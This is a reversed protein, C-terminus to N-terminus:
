WWKGSIEKWLTDGRKVQSWAGIFPGSIAVLLSLPWPLLDTMFLRLAICGFVVLGLLAGGIIAGLRSYKELPDNM